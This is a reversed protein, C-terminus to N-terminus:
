EGDRDLFEDYLLTHRNEIPVQLGRIFLHSIRSKMEFPDGDVVFCNAYKGVEISGHTDGIGLIIAADLTIAKVAAETGLGYAAAFGANFPLNRVNETELTRICIPVGAEALMAANRYPTDYRDYDRNPLSLIPGVICPYGSAAITDVVRWGESVGALVADISRERCWTIASLIDTKKNVEVLLRGTGRVVPLLAALEPNYVELTQGTAQAASDIRAFAVAEDWVKNLKKAAKDAAKKIDEASRRDWRGRKGTAPYVLRVMEAGAYMRQPTYGYLDIMAAIGPWQGGRPQTLVTTVGNTRTVPINVSNPNVATLAKMNPTFDGLEAMDQTLSVASIEGLGLYTGGDIFGPYIHKGNCDIVTATGADLDTGISVIKDDAILVDAEITGDSVTHVTGGQLLWPGKEAKTVMQAQGTCLALIIILTATITKHLM